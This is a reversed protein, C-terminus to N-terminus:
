FNDPLDNELLIWNYKRALADITPWVSSNNDLYDIKVKGAIGRALNETRENHGMLVIQDFVEATEKGIREHIKATHSGLEVIGPTILAKKGPLSKLDSIVKTFGMENSSYANDILTANGIRILELRHPSPKIGGVAKQITKPDIGLIFAMGIAAVLNELNASGFLKTKFQYRKNKSVITLEAGDPKLRYSSVYFDATPDTFSYTKVGSYQPLNLRNKIYKNDLNVLAKQRKVADILEFKAQTTNTLSKFRELHQSGITTLIAYDPPVMRTLEKIEGRIYAGMECIFYHLKKHLELEVVKAIGFITNYSEPTKLIPAYHRLIEFLFDKTSTKGYSGTIGIVTLHPHGTIARRVAYITLLRRVVEYPKIIILSLLLLPFPELALLAIVVLNNPFPVFLVAALYLLFTVAMILRVKPTYVLPKKGGTKFTLPHAFWWRLFRLSSYDELQLIHLQTKLPNM